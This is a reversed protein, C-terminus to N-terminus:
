CGERQRVDNMSQKESNGPLMVSVKLSVYIYIYIYIYKESSNARSLEARGSLNILRAVSPGEARAERPFIKLLDIAALLRLLQVCVYTCCFNDTSRVDM